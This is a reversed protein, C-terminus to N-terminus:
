FAFKLLSLIILALGILNKFPFLAVRIQHAIGEVKPNRVFLMPNMYEYALLHGGAFILGGFALGFLYLGQGSFISLFGSILSMIGNMFLFVGFYTIYKKFNDTIQNVPIGKSTLWPEALFCGGIFYLFSYVIDWFEM